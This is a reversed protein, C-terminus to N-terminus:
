AAPVTFRNEQMTQITEKMTSLYDGAIYGLTQGRAGTADDYIISNLVVAVKERLIGLEVFADDSVLSYLM